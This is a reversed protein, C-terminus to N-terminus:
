NCHVETLGLAHQIVLEAVRKSAGKEGMLKRVQLLECAVAEADGPNMLWMAIQEGVTEPTCAWLAFEPMVKRGLLRNPLAVFGWGSFPLSLKHIVIANTRNLWNTTFIAITPIGLWAAELTVTGTVAIAADSAMFVEHTMGDFVLVQIGKLQKTARNLARMLKGSDVTPSIACLLEVDAVKTKRVAYCIAKTMLGINETVEGIRSGPLLAIRIPREWKAKHPLKLREEADRRTLNDPMADVLPHGLFVVQRKDAGASLLIDKQWDYIPVYIVKPHIYRRVSNVNKTWFGPPIYYVTPIGMNAALKTLRRNVAGFDIAVLVNPRYKELWFVTRRFISWMPLLHPLAAFFGIASHKTTEALLRIGKSRMRPGGIGWFEFKIGTCRMEEVLLSAYLDASADGVSLFVRMTADGPLYSKLRCSKHKDSAMAMAVSLSPATVTISMKSMHEFQQVGTGKDGQGVKM